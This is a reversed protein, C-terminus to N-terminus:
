LFSGTRLKRKVSPKRGYTGKIRTEDQAEVDAEDVKTNHEEGIAALHEKLESKDMLGRGALIVTKGSPTEV